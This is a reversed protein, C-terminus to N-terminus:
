RRAVPSKSIVPGVCVLTMSTCSINAPHCLSRHTPKMAASARMMTKLVGGRPTFKKGILPQNLNEIM